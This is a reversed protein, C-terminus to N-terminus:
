QGPRTPGEGTGTDGVDTAPLSTDQGDGVDMTFRNAVFIPVVTSFLHVLPEGNPDLFLEDGRGAFIEMEVRVAVPIAAPPLANELPNAAVNPDSTQGARRGLRDTRDTRGGTRGGRGALGVQGQELLRAQELLINERTEIQVKSDWETLWDLGDFYWFQFSKVKDYVELNLGPANLVDGLSFDTVEKRFLKYCDYGPIRPNLELYYSVATVTRLTEIQEQWTEEREFTTPDTTTLFRVEDTWAGESGGSAGMFVQRDLKEVLGHFFIGALDRRIVSMIGEGAKEPMTLREVHRETELCNSLIQYSTVLVLVLMTMVIILEHLTFGRRNARPGRTRTMM